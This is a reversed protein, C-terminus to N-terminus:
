SFKKLACFADFYVSNGGRLLKQTRFITVKTTKKNAQKWKQQNTKAQSANKHAWFNKTFLFYIPKFNDQYSWKSYKWWCCKEEGFMKGLWICSGSRDGILQLWSDTQIHVVPVISVRIGIWWCIKLLKSVILILLFQFILAIQKNRTCWNKM